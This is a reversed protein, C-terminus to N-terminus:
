THEAKVKNKETERRSTKGDERKRKEQLKGELAKMEQHGSKGCVNSRKKKQEKGQLKMVSRKQCCFGKSCKISLQNSLM